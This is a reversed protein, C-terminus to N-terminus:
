YKSAGNSLEIWFCHLFIFFFVLILNIYSLNIKINHKQKDWAIIFNYKLFFDERSITISDLLINSNYVYRKENIIFLLLLLYLLFIWHTHQLLTMNVSTFSM